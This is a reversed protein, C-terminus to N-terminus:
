AQLVLKQAKKQEKLLVEVTPINTDWEVLPNAKPFQKLSKVFLKWVEKSVVSGHDDIYVSINEETNIHHGALHIEQVDLDAVNNLYQYPDFNHNKSSVFINNVDLLVGCGSQKSAKSLFQWEPMNSEPFSLYSSPNEILIQRGLLNQTQNINNIFNKLSASTYPIPLLDHTFVGDLGSWSMHDSILFPQLANALDKIKKAYNLNVPQCSGLSFGLCHFSIPYHQRLKYLSDLSKGGDSFYNEPHIELWLNKYKKELFIELHPSRLGVGCIQSTPSKVFCSM